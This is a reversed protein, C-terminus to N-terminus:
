SFIPQRQTEVEYVGGTSKHDIETQPKEIFRWSSRTNLYKYHSQTDGRPMFGPYIYEANM